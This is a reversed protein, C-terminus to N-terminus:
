LLQERRTYYLWIDHFHLYVGEHLLGLENSHALIVPNLNDPKRRESM